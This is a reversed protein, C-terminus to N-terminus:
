NSKAPRKVLQGAIKRIESVPMGLREHVRLILTDGAPRRGHRISSVHAPDMGLELALASDKQLGQRRLLHDLLPHVATKKRGM